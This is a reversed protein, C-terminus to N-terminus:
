RGVSVTRRASGIRVLLCPFDIARTVRSGLRGLAFRDKDMKEHQRLSVYDAFVAKSFMTAFASIARISRNRCKGCQKRRQTGMKTPM